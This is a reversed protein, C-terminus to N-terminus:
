QVKCACCGEDNSVAPLRKECERTASKQRRVPMNKKMSVANSHQTKRAKKGIMVNDVDNGDDSGENESDSNWLENTQKTKSLRKEIEMLKKQQEKM